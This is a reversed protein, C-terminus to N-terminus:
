RDENVQLDGDECVFGESVRGERQGGCLARKVARVIVRRWMRGV